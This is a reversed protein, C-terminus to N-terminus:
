VLQLPESHAPPLPSSLPFSSSTSAISPLPSLHCAPIITTHAPSSTEWRCHAQVRSYMAQVPPLPVHRVCARLCEECVLNKGSALLAFVYRAPFQLILIMRPGIDAEIILHDNCYATTVENGQVAPLKMRVWHGRHGERLQTPGVVMLAFKHPAQTRLLGPIVGFGAVALVQSGSDMLVKTSRGPDDALTIKVLVKLEIDRKYAKGGCPAHPVEPGVGVQLTCLQRDLAACLSRVRLPCLWM